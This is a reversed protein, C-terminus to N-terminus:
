LAPQRVEVRATLRAHDVNCGFTFGAANRDRAPADAHQRCRQPLDAGAHGLFAIHEAHRADSGDLRCFASGLQDREAM